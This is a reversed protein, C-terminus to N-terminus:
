AYVSVYVCEFVSMCISECEHMYVYVCEYVVCVCAFMCVHV